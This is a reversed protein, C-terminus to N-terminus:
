RCLTLTHSHTYSLSHILTLTSLTLTLTLASLTLSYLTLASVTHAQVWVRLQAGEPGTRIWLAASRRARWRALDSSVKSSFSLEIDHCCQCFSLYSDIFNSIM